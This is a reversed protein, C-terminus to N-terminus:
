KCDTLLLVKEWNDDQRYFKDVTAKPFEPSSPCSSTAYIIVNRFPM